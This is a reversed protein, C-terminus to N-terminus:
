GDVPEEEPQKPTTSPGPIYLRAYPYGPYGWNIEKAKWLRDFEWGQEETLHHTYFKGEVMAGWTTFTYYGSKIDEPFPKSEKADAKLARKEARTLDKWGRGHGPHSSRSLIRIDDPNGDRPIGHVYFKYSKDTPGIEAGAKVLAMFAEGSLSGCYSCGEPQGVLGHGKTYTDLNSGGGRFPGDERDMGDATRRPCTFKESMYYTRTPTVQETM